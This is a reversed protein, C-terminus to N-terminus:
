SSESASSTTSCHNLPMPSAPRHDRRRQTMRSLEASTGRGTRRREATPDPRAAAVGRRVGIAVQEADPDAGARPWRTARDRRAPGAVTSTADRDLHRGRLSQRLRGSAHRSSSRAPRSAVAPRRAPRRRPRRRAGSRTTRAATRRPRAPSHWGPRPGPRAWGSAADLPGRVDVGVPAAPARDDDAGPQASVRRVQSLQTIRCRREVDGGSGDDIALWRAGPTSNTTASRNSAAPRVPM